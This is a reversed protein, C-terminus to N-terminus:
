RTKKLEHFLRTSIAIFFPAFLAMSISGIAESAGMALLVQKPPTTWWYQAAYESVIRSPSFGAILTVVGNLLHTLLFYLCLLIFAPIILRTFTEWWRGKVLEASAALAQTGSQNDELVYYAAFSLAVTLWIGPLVFVLAGGLTALGVLISVWFFKWFLRGSVHDIEANGTEQALLAQTIRMSLYTTGFVQIVLVNLFRIAPSATEPFAYAVTNLAFAALALAIFWSSRKMLVPAHERVHMWSQELLDSISLLPKTAM